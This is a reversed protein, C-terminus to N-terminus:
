EHSKDKKVTNLKQYIANIYDQMRDSNNKLGNLSQQTEQRITSIRSNQQNATYITFGISCVMLVFMVVCLMQARHLAISSADVNFNINSSSNPSPSPNTGNRKIEKFDNRLGEILPIIKDADLDM